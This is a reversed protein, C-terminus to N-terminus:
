DDLIHQLRQAFGMRQPNQKMMAALKKEIFRKLDEIEIRKFPVSAFAEKLAVFDMKSLDFKGGQPTIHYGSRRDTLSRQTEDDVQLSEDLLVSVEDAVRSVDATTGHSDMVKRLYRFVGILPRPQQLVEPKCAQYLTSISNEHVNFGQRYERKELLCDAFGDFRALNDFSNDDNLVSKPEFGCARCYAEGLELAQDLLDFLESKDSIPMAEDDGSGYDSLAQNMDDLVNYYDVVDGHHKKVGNILYSSVRNARAIAQMLTHRKMPKDLYLSSLTPADFGTLWMACVFVLRLPDSPDKFRYELDHGNEDLRNLRERHFDIDLGQAAFRAHEQGEESIVVAMELSRLFDLRQKLVDKEEEDSCTKHQKFLTKIEEKRASEVQDYMKVTTFKDVSVVMGKGLYGRQSVHQVIDKGIAMLRDPRTIVEIKKAFRNELRTKEVE